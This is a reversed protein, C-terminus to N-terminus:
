MKIIKLITSKTTNCKAAIGTIIISYMNNDKNLMNSLKNAFSKLIYDGAFQGFFDNIEKFDDINIILLAGNETSNINDLLHHRNPLKTLTDTYLQKRLEVTKENVQYELYQNINKQEESYHSIKEQMDILAKSILGIESNQSVYPIDIEENPSYKELSKAINRLPSLLKKVYLSFLIFIISFAVFMILLIKTYKDILVKYNKNSYSIILTGIKKNSNPQCIVQEIIFSEETSKEYGASKIENITKGNKLIKVALINQNELLKTIIQDTKDKMDLYINLAILPEITRAVLNAKEMEISYFAKKNVREFVSFIILVSFLSILMILLVIKSSLSKTKKTNM